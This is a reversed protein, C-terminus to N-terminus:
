TSDPVFVVSTGNNCCSPATWPGVAARIYMSVFAVSDFGGTGASPMGKFLGKARTPSALVLVLKSRCIVTFEMTM